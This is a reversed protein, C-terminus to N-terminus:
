EQLLLLHIVCSDIQESELIGSPLLDAVCSALSVFENLVSVFM